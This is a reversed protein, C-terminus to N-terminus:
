RALLERVAKEYAVLRAARQKRSLPKDSSFVTKFEAGGIVLDMYIYWKPVGANNVKEQTVKRWSTEIAEVAQTSM